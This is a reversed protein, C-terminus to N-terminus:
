DTEENMVNPDGPLFGGRNRTSKVQNPEFVIWYRNSAPRGVDHMLTTLSDYGEKVLYDRIAYKDLGYGGVGRDTALVRYPVRIEGRDFEKGKAVAESRGEEAYTKQVIASRALARESEPLKSPDISDKDVDFPKLSKLYYTMVTPTKGTAAESHGGKSFQEAAVVDETFYFGPGFHLYDAPAMKDKRFESFEGHPSGHYVVIPEGGYNDRVGRIPATEQPVGHADVVKSGKFWAHFEPTETVHGSVPFGPWGTRNPPCSNDIGGGEGTPCFANTTAKEKLARDLFSRVVEEPTPIHAMVGLERAAAAISDKRRAEETWWEAQGKDYVPDTKM